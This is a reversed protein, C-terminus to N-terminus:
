TTYRTILNLQKVGPIPATRTMHMRSQCTNGFSQEGDDHTSQITTADSISCTVANTKRFCFVFFRM